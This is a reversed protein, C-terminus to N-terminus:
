FNFLFCYFFLGKEPSQGAPDANFIPQRSPALGEKGLEQAVKVGIRGQTELTRTVVLAIWSGGYNALQIAILIIIGYAIWKKGTYRFEAGHFGVQFIYEKGQNTMRESITYKQLLLYSAVFIILFIIWYASIFRKSKMALLVGLQILNVREKSDLDKVRAGLAIVPNALGVPVVLKLFNGLNQLGEGAAAATSVTTNPVNVDGSIDM